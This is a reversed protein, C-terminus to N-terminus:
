KDRSVAIATYKAALVRRVTLFLWLFFFSLFVATGTEFGVGLLKTRVSLQPSPDTVLSADLVLKMLFTLVLGLRLFRPMYRRIPSLLLISYGFFTAIDTIAISHFLQLKEDTM